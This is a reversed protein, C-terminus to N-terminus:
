FQIKHCVRLINDSESNPGLFVSFFNTSKQQQRKPRLHVSFMGFGSLASLFGTPPVQLLNTLHAISSRSQFGKKFSRIKPTARTHNFSVMGKDFGM